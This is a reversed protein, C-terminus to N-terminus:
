RNTPGGDTTLIQIREVIRWPIVQKPEEAFKITGSEESVTFIPQMAEIQDRFLIGTVLWVYTLWYVAAFVLLAPVIAMTLGIIDELLGIAGVSAAFALILCTPLALRLLYDKVRSM